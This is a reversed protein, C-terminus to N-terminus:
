PQYSTPSGVSSTPSEVRPSPTRPENPVNLFHRPGRPLDNLTRSLLWGIGDGDNHYDGYSVNVREEAEEEEESEVAGAFIDEDHYDVDIINAREEAEEEGEVAGAFIDEDHYDVDIMNVREEEEIAEIDAFIDEDHYDVDIINAREEAEEESEVAGAFIDEDHYDVDIMNVREEEEIAEIDAFIDEDSEDITIVEIEEITLVESALESDHSSAPPTNEEDSDDIIITDNELGLIVRLEWPDCLQVLQEDRITDIRSRCPFDTPPILRHGDEHWTVIKRALAVELAQHWITAM